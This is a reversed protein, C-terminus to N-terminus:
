EVVFHVRRNRARASEDIGNMLPKDKGYSITKLRNSDIGKNVLYAKAADARRKGLAINYAESGKSDCHAEITVNKTPHEKMWAAVDQLQPVADKRIFSKDFDFLIDGLIMAKTVVIPAPPPPPPAVVVPPPPAVVVPAPAPAPKPAPPAPPPPPPVVVPAPAPAPQLAPELAVPQCTCAGMLLMGPVMVSRVFPSVSKKMLSTPKYNVCFFM